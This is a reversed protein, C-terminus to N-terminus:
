RSILLHQKIQSYDIQYGSENDSCMNEYKQMAEKKNKGPFSWAVNDSYDKILTLSNDNNDKNTKLIGSEKVDKAEQQREFVTELISM